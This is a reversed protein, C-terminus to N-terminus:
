KGTDDRMSIAVLILLGIAIPITIAKDTWGGNLIYDAYAEATGYELDQWLSKLAVAFVAGEFFYSKELYPDIVIASIGLYAKKM